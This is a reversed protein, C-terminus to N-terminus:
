TSPPPQTGLQALRYDVYDHIYQVWYKTSYMLILIGGLIVVSGFTYGVLQLLSSQSAHIGALSNIGILLFLLGSRVTSVAQFPTPPKPATEHISNSPKVGTEM